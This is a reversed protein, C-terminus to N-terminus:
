VRGDGKAEDDRDCPKWWGHATVGSAAPTRLRCARAEHALTAGAGWELSRTEARQAERMAVDRLCDGGCESEAIPLMGSRRPLIVRHISSRTVVEDRVVALNVAKSAGSEVFQQLLLDRSRKWLEVAFAHLECGHVNAEVTSSGDADREGDYTGSRPKQRM